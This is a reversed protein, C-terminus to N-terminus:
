ENSARKAAQATRLQAVELDATAKGVIEAEKQESELAAKLLEVKAELSEKWREFNLSLALLQNQQQREAQAAQQQEQARRQAVEIAKPTSPDIWYQEAAELDSAECWNILANHAKTMDTLIGGQRAGIFREQAAIVKELSAARRIKEQLTKGATCRLRTREKWQRPDTTQWEGHRKLDLTSQMKTRMTRHVLRYLDRILTEAVTLAMMKGAKERASYQRETGGATHGAIQAEASQLDLSAGGRESRMKDAYDLLARASPGADGVNLPVIADKSKIRVYGGPKPRMWDGINVQNEVLGARVNNMASLNDMWHRLGGTKVHEIQCLRDDLSVGDMRFPRIVAQGNVFPPFAVEEKLLVKNNSFLVKWLEPLGDGNMDVRIYVRQCEIRETSPEHGGSYTVATTWRAVATNRSEAASVPLDRVVNRAVGMELLEGREYRELKALVRVGEASTCKWDAAYKMDEAPVAQLRRREHTFTRRLTVTFLPEGEVSEGSQEQDILKVEETPTEPQLAIGVAEASLSHLTEDHTTKEEEIDFELWCTRMLLAEQVATVLERFGDNEQFVTDEVAATEIDAAKEDEENIPTFVAVGPSTLSPAIDAVVAEVMDAVDTSIVKSRGKMEDGRPLGYYRRIAAARVADLEDSDAGDAQELEARIIGALDDDNLPGDHRPM